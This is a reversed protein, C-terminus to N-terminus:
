SNDPADWAAQLAAQVEAMDPDLWRDDIEEMPIGDSFMDDMLMTIEDDETIVITDDDELEALKDWLHQEKATGSPSDPAPIKSGMVYPGDSKREYLRPGDSYPSATYPTGMAPTRDNAFRKAQNKSWEEYDFNSARERDYYTSTAKDKYDYATHSPQVYKPTTYTKYTRSRTKWHLNSYRNGKHTVWDGRYHILWKNESKFLVATAWSVDDLIDHGGITAAYAAVQTDSVKSQDVGEPIWKQYDKWTGNHMLVGQDTTGSLGATFADMGLPFPHTLYQSKGGRTAYRFHLFFPRPLDKQLEFVQTANLGRMFLVQGGEIWAIGAGDPNDGEMALLDKKRINYKNEVIVAVCM